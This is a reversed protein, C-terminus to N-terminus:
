LGIPIFLCFISFCMRTCFETLCSLFFCNSFEMEKKRQNAKEEGNAWLRFISSYRCCTWELHINSKNGGKIRLATCIWPREFAVVSISSPIWIKVNIKEKTAAFCWLAGNFVFGSYKSQEVAPFGHIKAQPLFSLFCIINQDGEIWFIELQAESVDDM